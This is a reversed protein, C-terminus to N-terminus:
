EALKRVFALGTEIADNQVNDVTMTAPDHELFGAEALKPFHAHHCRIEIEEFDTDAATITYLHEVVGTCDVAEEHCDVLYALIARREAHALADLKADLTPDSEQGGINSSTPGMKPGM